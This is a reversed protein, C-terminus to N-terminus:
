AKGHGGEEQQSRLDILRGFKILVNLATSYISDFILFFLAGLISSEIMEYAHSFISVLNM